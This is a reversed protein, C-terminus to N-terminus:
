SGKRRQYHRAAKARNGCGRMSCWRRRGSTNLFLWGCDGNACIAVNEERPSTLLEAASRVVPWLIRDPSGPEANSWGWAYGTETPSLLAHGMAESLVENILELDDDAPGKTFTLFLAERLAVATGLVKDAGAADDLSRRAQADDLVGAQQGWAVLDTYRTLHEVPREALHWSATNVFDLCLAGGVFSFAFGM